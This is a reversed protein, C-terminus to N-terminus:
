SIKPHPGYSKEEGSAPSTDACSVSPNGRRCHAVGVIIYGDGSNPLGVGGASRAVEGALPSSSARKPPLPM